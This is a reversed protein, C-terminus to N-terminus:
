TVHMTTRGGRAAVLLKVVSESPPLMATMGTLRHHYMALLWPADTMMFGAVVAATRFSLETLLGAYGASAREAAARVICAADMRESRLFRKSGERAGGRGKRRTAPGRASRRQGQAADCPAALSVMAVLSLNMAAADVRQVPVAHEVRLRDLRRLVRQELQGVLDLLLRVSRISEM